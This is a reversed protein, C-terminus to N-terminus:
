VDKVGYVDLIFKDWFKRDPNEPLVPSDIALVREIIAPLEENMEEYSVKGLKVDLVRQLQLLPFTIKGTTVLEELEFICRYSHSLAKFDVGNSAKAAHARAGAQDYTDKLSAYVDKVKMKFDFKKDLVQLYKVKGGNPHVTDTVTVYESEPFVLKGPLQDLFKGSHEVLYPSLVDLMQEVIRLRDGKLGYKRAQALCYGVFPKLNKSLLKSRNAIIQDWVESRELIMNAPAFLMDLAYTQGSMAENLFTRLEKYEIDTDDKTNREDTKNTNEIKHSAARNLVIDRLDAKFVGKFDLDSNPTNTGFLHSGFKMFVIKNM